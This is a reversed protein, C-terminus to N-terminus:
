LATHTWYSGLKVFLLHMNSFFACFLCVAELPLAALKGAWGDVKGCGGLGEDM